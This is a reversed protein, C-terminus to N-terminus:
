ATPADLPLTPPVFGRPKQPNVGAAEANAAGALYNAARKPSHRSKAEDVAQQLFGVAERLKGHYSAMAARGGLLNGSGARGKAWELNRQVTAMDGELFAVNNQIGRLLVSDMGADFARRLIQKAEDLRNTEM